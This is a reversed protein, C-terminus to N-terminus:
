TQHINEPEGDCEEVVWSEEPRAGSGVGGLVVERREAIAIAEELTDAEVTTYASVGVAASLNFEPM